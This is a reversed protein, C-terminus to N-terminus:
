RMTVWLAALDPDDLAELKLAKADGLAFARELWERADDLRGMQCAYCALNYPFVWQDPFRDAAPLLANWAEQTRKLEHLAYALRLHWFSDDPFQKALTSAAEIVYDWRKAASYFEVRMRLGDPHAKLTPQISELEASASAWDYDELWGQAALLHTADSSTIDIRSLLEEIASIGTEIQM